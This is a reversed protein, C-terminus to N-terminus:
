SMIEIDPDFVVEGNLMVNYKYIGDKTRPRVTDRVRRDFPEGTTGKLPNDKKWGLTVRGPVGAANVITWEIADGPRAVLREAVRAYDITEDLLDSLGAADVAAELEVDIAILQPTRREEETVGCRGYCELREIIIRPAM